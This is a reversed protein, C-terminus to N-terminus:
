RDVPQPPLPVVPLAPPDRRELGPPPSLQNRFSEPPLTQIRVLNGAKDFEYSVGFEIGFQDGWKAGGVRLPPARRIGEKVPPVPRPVPFELNGSPAIQYAGDTIKTRFRVRLREVDPLWSIHMMDNVERPGTPAREALAAKQAKLMATDLTDKNMTQWQSYRKKAQEVAETAKLAYERTGDLPTMKTAVFGEDAPAGMKDNVEVEVLAFPATIGWLDKVTAPNAMNLAPYIRTQDGQAGIKVQLNQIISPGGNIAPVYAWRYSGGGSSFAMADPPGSRGENGMIKAVDSVLVGVMKGPLAQYKREPIYGARDPAKEEQISPAPAAVLMAGMALVNACFGIHLMLRMNMKRDVIAIL